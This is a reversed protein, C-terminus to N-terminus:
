ISCDVVFKMVKLFIVEVNDSVTASVDDQSYRGLVKLTVNDRGVRWM